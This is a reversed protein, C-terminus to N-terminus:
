IYSEGNHRRTYHSICWYWFILEKIYGWANCRHNSATNHHSQLMFTLGYLSSSRLLLLLTRQWFLDTELIIIYKFPIALM